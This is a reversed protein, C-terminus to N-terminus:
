IKSRKQGQLSFFFSCGAHFRSGGSLGSRGGSPSASPGDVPPIRVGGPGSGGFASKNVAGVVEGSTGGLIIPRGFVGLLFFVSGAGAWEDLRRSKKQKKKQLHLSFFFSPRPSVVIGRYVAVGGVRAPALAKLRHCGRGGGARLGRLGVQEGGGGGAGPNRRPHNPPGYHRTFFALGRARGNMWAAARKKSRKKSSFRFFSPVGPTSSSRKVAGGGALVIWRHYIALKSVVPPPLGVPVRLACHSLAQPTKERLPASSPTAGSKPHLPVSPAIPLRRRRKKNSASVRLRLTLHRM